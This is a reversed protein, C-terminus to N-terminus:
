RSGAAGPKVTVIVYANTWCCQFGRGGDGSWDNAVVRLVYEGPVGFSATTTAKGTFASAPTAVFDAKEVPPKDNAFTVVGPGRFKGWSVTVPSGLPRLTGFIGKLDDAAWVSIAFPEARTTTLTARIGRPGQVFAGGEELSIYPPTNGSAEIFPSVEWLPNLGAPIATTERNTALTWTLKNVGFDKPVTVTFLGWQRGPAFHDPQGRDPGGPDIRNQPGIPIDLEQNLNRNHYGFLLSFSGDPNRFWGEYAPTVSQGSDHLPEFPLRQQGWLPMLASLLIAICAPLKGAIGHRSSCSKRIQTQRGV